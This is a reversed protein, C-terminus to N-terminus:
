SCTAAATTEIRAGTLSRRAQRVPSGAPRQKSGRERSPAVVGQPTLRFWPTNRDASGHPLSGARVARGRGQVLKSGRERSPAVSAQAAAPTAYKRNRDASGHPLSRELEGIEGLRLQNRDASGHPLSSAEREAARPSRRKSGRERSPAVDRRDRLAALAVLKSGRERSPAVSAGNYLDAYIRRNRDASGHPLSWRAPRSSPAPGTEIRAGTLSRGM